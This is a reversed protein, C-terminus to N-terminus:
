FSNVKKQVVPREAAIAIVINIDLFIKKRDKRKGRGESSEKQQDRGPRPLHGFANM